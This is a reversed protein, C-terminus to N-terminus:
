GRRNAPRSSSRAAIARVAVSSNASIPTCSSTRRGILVSEVACSCSTCIAAAIPALGRMRTKSSGVLENDAGSASRNNSNISLKFARPSVVM